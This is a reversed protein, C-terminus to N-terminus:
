LDDTKERVTCRKKSTKSPIVSDSPPHRCKIWGLFIYVYVNLYIDFINFEKHLLYNYIYTLFYMNFYSILTFDM